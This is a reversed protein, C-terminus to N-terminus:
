IIGLKYEILLQAVKDRIWRHKKVGLVVVMVPAGSKLSTAVLNWGAEPYYGTKLGDVYKCRRM